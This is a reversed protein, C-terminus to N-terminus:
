YSPAQRLITPPAPLGRAAASSSDPHPWSSFSRRAPWLSLRTAQSCRPAARAPRWAGRIVIVAHRVGKLHKFRYPALLRVSTAMRGIFSRARPLSVSGPPSPLPQQPYPQQATVSRPTSRWPKLPLLAERQTLERLSCLGCRTGVELELKKYIQM